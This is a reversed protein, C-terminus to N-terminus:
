GILEFLKGRLPLLLVVIVIVDFIAGVKAGPPVTNWWPVIVILSIVSVAIALPSWWDQQIVIGIATGVFGITAILWLLGFVRGLPGDLFVGSSFIWPSKKFGADSSTWSSLFGSIHALGHIFFPIAFIYRWM